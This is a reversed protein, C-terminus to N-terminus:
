SNNEIRSTRISAQHWYGGKHTKGFIFFSICTLTSLITIMMYYWSGFVEKWCPPLSFFILLVWILTVFFSVLQNIKSVSLSDPGTLGHNVYEWKTSPRQRNTVVKYLPGQINDELLDVHYEWNEQWFKSGRNVCFWALSFVVGVNALLFAMQNVNPASSAQLAIYGAFTAAIFTWFYAARKWYLEIEYKRNELARDLAKEQLKRDSLFRENYQNQSFPTTPM